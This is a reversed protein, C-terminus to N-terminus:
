TSFVFCSLRRSTLTSVGHARRRIIFGETFLERACHTQTLATLREHVPQKGSTTVSSHTNRSVARSNNHLMM